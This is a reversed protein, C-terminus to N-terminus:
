RISASCRRWRRESVHTATAAAAYGEGRKEDAVDRGIAGDAGIEELVPILDRRLVLALPALDFRGPVHVVPAAQVPCVVIAICFLMGNLCCVNM